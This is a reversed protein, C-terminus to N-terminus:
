REGTGYWDDIKQGALNSLLLTDVGGNGNTVTAGAACYFWVIFADTGCKPGVFDGDRM